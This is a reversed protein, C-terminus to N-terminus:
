SRMIRFSIKKMLFPVAIAIAVAVLLLIWPGSASIPTATVEGGVTYGLPVRATPMSTVANQLVFIAYLDKRARM